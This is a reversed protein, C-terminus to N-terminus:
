ENIDKTQNCTRPGQGNGAILFSLSSALQGHKRTIVQNSVM